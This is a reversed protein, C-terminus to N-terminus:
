FMGTVLMSGVKVLSAFRNMASRHSEVLSGLVDLAHDIESAMGSGIHTM